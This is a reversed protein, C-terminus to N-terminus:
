FAGFFVVEEPSPVILPPTLEPVAPCSPSSEAVSSTGYVSFGEPAPSPLQVKILKHHFITCQAGTKQLTELLKLHPGSTKKKYDTLTKHRQAKKKSYTEEPYQPAGVFEKRQHHERLVEQGGARSILRGKM